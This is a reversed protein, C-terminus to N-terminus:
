SGLQALCAQLAGAIEDRVAAHNNNMASELFHAARSHKTGLEVLHIIKAPDEFIPKGDKRAGVEKRFGKRVGVIGVVTASKYTKVKDGLSKALLGSKRPCAAKASWKVKKNAANVGKRLYKKQLSKSVDEFKRLLSTLGQIEAAIM